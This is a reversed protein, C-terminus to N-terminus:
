PTSEKPVYHTLYMRKAIDWAGNWVSCDESSACNFPGYELAEWAAIMVMNADCFDQSACSKTKDYADEANMFQMRM